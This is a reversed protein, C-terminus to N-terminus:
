EGEGISAGDRLHTGHGAAIQTAAIDMATNNDEQNRQLDTQAKLAVRESEAQEHQAAISEQLQLKTM